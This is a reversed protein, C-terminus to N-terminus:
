EHRPEVLSICFSMPQFLMFYERSATLNKEFPYKPLCHLGLNFAVSQKLDFSIKLSFLIKKVIILM